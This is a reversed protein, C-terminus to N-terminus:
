QGAHLTQLEPAMTSVGPLINKQQKQCITALLKTTVVMYQLYSIMQIKELSAM